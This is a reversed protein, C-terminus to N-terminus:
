LTPAAETQSLSINYIVDASDTNNTFKNKTYYKRFNRVCALIDLVINYM